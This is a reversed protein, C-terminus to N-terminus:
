AISNIHRVKEGILLKQIKCKNFPSTGWTDCPGLINLQEIICNEFASNGISIVSDPIVLCEQSFCGWQSYFCDNGIVKLNAPLQVDADISSAWFMSDPIVTVCDGFKVVDYM